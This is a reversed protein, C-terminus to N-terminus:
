NELEKKIYEFIQEKNELPNFWKVKKLGKIFTIQRKAYNRSNKSILEKLEELSIENNFYGAFEKYGIAQMSQCDFDVKKNTLVNKVEDVLGDEFM